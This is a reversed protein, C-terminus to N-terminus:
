LQSKLHDYFERLRDLDIGEPDKEFIWELDPIALAPKDAQAHLLARSLREGPNEPNIAVILDIYRVAELPEQEEIAIGKLNTLMRTIMQRKTSIEYQDTSEGLAPILGALKAAEDNTVFAATSSM